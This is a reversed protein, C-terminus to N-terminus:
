VGSNIQHAHERVLKRPCIRVFLWISPAMILLVVTADDLQGLFAYPDPLVDFPVLIYTLCIIGAIVPIIKKYKPVRSDRFLRWFLKVFNPLHYILRLFQIPSHQGRM